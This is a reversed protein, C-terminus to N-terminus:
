GGVVVATTTFSERLPWCNKQLFILFHQEFWSSSESLIGFYCYKARFMDDFVNNLPLLFQERTFVVDNGLLSTMGHSRHIKSRDYLDTWIKYCKASVHRCIKGGERKAACSFGTYTMQIFGWFVYHMGFPIGSASSSEHEVLKVSWGRM